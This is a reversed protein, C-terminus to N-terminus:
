RTAAGRKSYKLDVIWHEIGAVVNAVAALHFLEFAGDAHLEVRQSEAALSGAAFGVAGLTEAADLVDLIDTGALAGRGEAM